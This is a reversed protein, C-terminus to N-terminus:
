CKERLKVTKSGDAKTFRLDLSLLNIVASLSFGDECM